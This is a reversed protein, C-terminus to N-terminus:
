PLLTKGAETRLISDRAPEFRVRARPIASSSGAATGAAVAQAALVAACRPPGESPVGATILGVTLTAEAAGVGGPTVAASGLADGALFVVVVSVLSLSM